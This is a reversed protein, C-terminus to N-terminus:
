ESQMLLYGFEEGAAQTTDVEAKFSFQAGPRNSKGFGLSPEGDFVGQPIWLQAPFVGYASMTNASEVAGGRALIAYRTPIYEHKLGFKKTTLAGSTGAVVEAAAMSLATALNELTLDVVTAQVTFGADPRVHKLAGNHDNNSFATLTGNWQLTQDGDTKGIETWGTAVADLDPIATQAAAVYFIWTGVLQAYPTQSAM